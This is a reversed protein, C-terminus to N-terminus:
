PFECEVIRYLWDWFALITGLDQSSTKSSWYFITIFCEHSMPSAPVSAVVSREENKQKCSIVKAIVSKSENLENAIADLECRKWKVLRHYSLIWNNKETQNMVLPYTTLLKRLKMIIIGHHGGIIYMIKWRWVHRNRVINAFCILDM